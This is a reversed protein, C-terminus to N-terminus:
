DTSSPQAVPQRSVHGAIFSQCLAIDRLGDIGTTRPQTGQTVCEHFHVLERKFPSEYSALEDTHWTRTEGAVGGEIELTAPANRLFPSPFALTLRRDSAIFSFEQRYRTIGPLDIWNLVCPIDGFKLIATVGTRRIEVYDLSDPEGLISRVFNLEHILSDLMVEHYAKVLFDDDSSIAASLQARSESRLRDLIESPPPTAGLVLPIHSVYPQFPSEYTTIRVLRLDEVTGLEECLRDYASDFRKVYAVMLVVGASEAAAIMERGESVSFCMPKETLVHIGANAAAIAIPAHSGNTLILIADLGGTDIMEQWSTYTKAIGYVAANREAADVSLDCLAVVEYRDSLERLYHLHMVQAIVGAGVVGIKVRDAM